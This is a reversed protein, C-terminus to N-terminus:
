INPIYKNERFNYTIFNSTGRCLDVPYTKNYKSVMDIADIFLNAKILKENEKENITYRTYDELSVGSVFDDDKVYVQADFREYQKQIEMLQSISVDLLFHLKEVAIKQKVIDGKQSDLQKNFEAVMDALFMKRDIKNIDVQKECWELAVQVVKIRDEAEKVAQNYGISDVAVKMPVFPKKSM